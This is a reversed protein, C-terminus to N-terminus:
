IFIHPSSGTNHLNQQGAKRVSSQEMSAKLSIIAKLMQAERKRSVMFYVEDKTGSTLLLVVDGAKFRGTRGRRQINRIESVIPEYFVVLDVNPIDLGEEGISSAILVKFMGKRFEEITQKQQAQTVGDKKGVFAKASMGNATLVDALMRITSRYQVFVIAQTDRRDYLLQILEFVKPHEEGNSIANDAIKKASAFAENKLLSELARSKKERANLSDVYASFAALGQTELLDYSHVLNLMRIYNTMAAFKYNTPTIKRIQDGTRILIGKPINEFNKFLLLGAKNLGHLNEIILPRLLACIEIIRPSKSVEIIRMYKPMVYRVVDPDTSMRAEIARIKLSELLQKIREKKSSPSATLGVIQVGHLECEDAIYTYAYKGVAKHCEDFIVVGFDAISLVGKKLDNSITQPTAAIVRARSEESARKIANTQGTVLLIDESPVDLLLRMSAEHQESLPKTPALILAKKGRSLSDAIACMAIFTKGLGTPLVVLTNKGKLVERVINYQYGRFEIGDLKIKGSAPGISYWRTDITM